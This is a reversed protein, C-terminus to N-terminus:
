FAVTVIRNYILVIFPVQGFYDHSWRWWLVTIVKGRQCWTHGIVGAPYVQNGRLFFLRCHGRCEWLADREPLSHSVLFPIHHLDSGPGADKRVATSSVRTNTRWLHRPGSICRFCVYLVITSSLITTDHYWALCNNFLVTHTWQIEYLGRFMMVLILVNIKKGTRLLVLSVIGVNCLM